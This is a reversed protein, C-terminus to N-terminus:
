GPVTRLVGLGPGEPAVLRGEALGIGQFPDDATLLHGDLDIWDVLPAVALAAAIGLSSEIMCGLLIKLGHARAVAILELARSIGGCKALKVNIGDYVGALRHVDKADHVDEDAVFPISTRARLARTEDLRGAPLPQEIFEIDLRELADLREVASEPTWGENADVRIVQRTAGRIARVLEVDGPLGMKVKLVRFEQAAAVKALAEDIPDNGITWSTPAFPRDAIGLLERVSIGLRRAALDHLAADLAAEASHQNSGALRAVRAAEEHFARPEALHPAMAEIAATVLEANEGYRPIPAAEGQGDIGDVEVTVLVNRRIVSAGRALRFPTKLHLEITESSLRTSQPM